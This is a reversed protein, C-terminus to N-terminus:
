GNDKLDNPLRGRRTLEHMFIAGAVAVNLSDTTVAMPITVRDNALAQLEDSLGEAENGLLLVFRAATSPWDDLRTATPHLSTAVLRFGHQQRLRILQDQPDDLRFFHHDLAAGMSVRIVRRSLHDLTGPGILIKNIGMAAASRLISGLNEPCTIKMLAPVVESNNGDTALQNFEVDPERIGCALLGRHFDFGVLSSLLSKSAVFIPVDEPLSPPLLQERGAQILVSEIRHRSLALREVVWRGEAILHREGGRSARNRLDYYPRLRADDFSDISVFNRTVRPVL